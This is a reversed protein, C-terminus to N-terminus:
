AASSNNPRTKFTIIPWGAALAHQRLRRDPNVATPHGVAELLPLDTISDSFGFSEDLDYGHESALATIAEVKGAGYAYREIEGTYKGDKVVMETAIVHDAGLYDAIPAVVELGSSSVIVIDHGLAKHDTILTIAETFILPYVLTPLQETVIRQVLAVDWGVCLAQLQDRTRDMYNHDAGKVSFVLQAFVGHLMAKRTVLGADYFARAFALTSSKALITKDLDFFAAQRTHQSGLV